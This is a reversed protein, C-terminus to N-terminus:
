PALGIEAKFSGDMRFPVSAHEHVIKWAGAIRRLCVTSRFWLDTSEGSTRKGTMRNLSRCVALDDSAFVALDRVEYGIRGIWTPFWEALGAHITAAGRHALPPALDYAVVDDAYLAIARGADRAGVADIWEGLVARVEDERASATQKTAM